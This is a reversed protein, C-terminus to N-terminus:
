VDTRKFMGMSNRIMLVNSRMHAYMNKTFM